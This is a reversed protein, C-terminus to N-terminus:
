LLWKIESQILWYFPEMLEKCGNDQQVIDKDALGFCVHTMLPTHGTVAFMTASTFLRPVTEAACTISGSVGSGGTM